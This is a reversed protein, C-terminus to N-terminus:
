SDSKQGSLIFIPNVAVFAQSTGRKELRNMSAQVVEMNQVQLATFSESVQYLNDLSNATTVIRGNPQLSQWVAALTDQISKSGEICVRDPAGDIESLCDPASGTVIEVNTVGFRDCNRQILSAVEEDREVAIIKGQPCLLGAEVPITGTGAGIDWLVSNATLQLHSLLLLRIERQSMPIGDIMEFLNDPIGPTVCNWLSM